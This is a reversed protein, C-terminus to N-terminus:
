RKVSDYWIFCNAATNRRKGGVQIAKVLLLITQPNKALLVEPKM